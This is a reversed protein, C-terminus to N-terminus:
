GQVRRVLGLLTRRAEDAGDGLPYGGGALLYDDATWVALLAEVPVHRPTGAVTENPADEVPGLVAQGRYTVLTARSAAPDDISIQREGHSEVADISRDALRDRFGSRARREVLRTLARNPSTKPRIALRSAFFFPAPPQEAPREFRVTTATVSVPGAAFPQETAHEVRHWDGLRDAPVVPPDM